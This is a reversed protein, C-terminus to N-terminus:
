HGWLFFGVQPQNLCLDGRLQLLAQAPLLLPPLPLLLHAWQHWGRLKVEGGQARGGGRTRDRPQWLQGSLLAQHGRAGPSRPLGASRSGPSQDGVGEAWLGAGWGRHGPRLAAPLSQPGNVGAGVQHLRFEHICVGVESGPSYSRCCSPPVFVTRLSKKRGSLAETWSRM